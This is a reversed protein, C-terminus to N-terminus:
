ATGNQNAAAPLRYETVPKAQPAHNAKMCGYVLGLVGLALIAAVVVALIFTTNFQQRQDSQSKM